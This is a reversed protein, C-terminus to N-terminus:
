WVQLGLRASVFFIGVLMGFEEGLLKSSKLHLEGLASDLLLYGFLEGDYKLHKEALHM